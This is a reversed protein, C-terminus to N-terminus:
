LIIAILSVIEISVIVIMKKVTLLKVNEIANEIINRM